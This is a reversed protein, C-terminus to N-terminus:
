PCRVSARSPLALGIARVGTLRAVRDRTRRIQAAIHRAAGPDAGEADRQVCVATGSCRRGNGRRNPTRSEAGRGPMVATGCARRLRGQAPGASGIAQRARRGRRLSSLLGLEAGLRGGLERAAAACEEMGIQRIPVLPVVDVAGLRPHAGEHERLDIASVAARAAALVGCLRSATSWAHPSWAITTTTPRATQWSPARVCGAARAIADIVAPRRGESFNAACQVLPGSM